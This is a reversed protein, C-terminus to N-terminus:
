RNPWLRRRIVRHIDKQLEMRTMTYPPCHRCEIGLLEDRRYRLHDRDYFLRHAPTEAANGIAKSHSCYHLTGDHGLLLGAFGYYCSLTREQGQELMRLLEGYKVATNGASGEALSHIFGVLRRREGEELFQDACERNHFREREEGLVFSIPLGQEEAWRVLDPAYDLNSRLLVCNLSCSLQGQDRRAKLMALTDSAKAFAREVGYIEDLLPGAAHFSVSIDLLVGRQDLLRVLGELQRDIRETLLGNTTISIRQLRRNNALFIGVLEALDKRLFPEGGSIGVYRLDTFLRDALVRRWQEANLEQDASARDKWLLCMVCRANCRHTPILHLMRPRFPRSRLPQFLNYRIWTSLLEPLMTVSM